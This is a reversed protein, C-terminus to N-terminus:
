IKNFKYLTYENNNLIWLYYTGTPLNNIDLETPAILFNWAYELEGLNNFIWATFEGTFNDDIIIKGDNYRINKINIAFKTDKIDTIDGNKYVLNFITSDEIFKTLKEIQEDKEKIIFELNNIISDKIFIDKELDILKRTIYDLTDKLKTNEIKISDCPDKIAFILTDEIKFGYSEAIGIIKWIGIQDFNLKFSNAYIIGGKDPYEKDNILIKITIADFNSSKEWILDVMADLPKIGGTTNFRFYTDRQGLPIKPTEAIVISTGDYVYRFIPSAILFNNKFTYKVLSEVEVIAKDIWTLGNDQSYQLTITQPLETETFKTELTYTGNNYIIPPINTFTGSSQIIDFTITKSPESDWINNPNIFLGFKVGNLITDPLFHFEKVIPRIEGWALTDTIRTYSIGDNYSVGIFFNDSVAPSWDEVFYTFPVKYYQTSKLDKFGEAQILNFGILGILITFFLKKFM